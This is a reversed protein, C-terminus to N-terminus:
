VLYISVFLNSRRVVEIPTCKGVEVTAIKPRVKSGECVFLSLITILSNQLDTM